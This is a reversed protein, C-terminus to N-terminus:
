AFLKMSCPWTLAPGSTMVSGANKTVRFMSSKIVQTSELLILLFISFYLSLSSSKSKSQHIYIMVYLYTPSLTPMYPKDTSTLVMNYLDIVPPVLGISYQPDPPSHSPSQRTLLVTAYYLLFPSVTPSGQSMDTHETVGHQYRTPLLSGVAQRLSLRIKM